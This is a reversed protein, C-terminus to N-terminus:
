PGDPVVALGELGYLESTLPDDGDRYGGTGNGAVTQVAAGALSTM